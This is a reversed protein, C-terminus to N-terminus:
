PLEIARKERVSQEAALGMRVAKLGDSISVVVAGEGRVLKNFGLHQYYTSGHHDGARLIQADVELERRIPGKPHRPSIVLQSAPEGGEPWFRAPGPILSEIKAMDGTAAMEEQWLSGEAFMCLDLMARRGSAFDVIVFANDLIDPTQGNYSEDRHNVDAGGSAYVRLPEDGKHEIQMVLRMLDFYHCCKEVLTGGTRASFRNWDGVKTLFPYRHERIAFMKMSGATGLRLEDLLAAVPLMYRYEMAVWVPARYHVAAAELADADQANTCLPKEVLIPLAKPQAFIDSLIAKHTDNPSAIVLADVNAEKLLAHHDSFVAAPTAPWLQQLLQSTQTRQGADPDSFAAITAGPVLSLNRIHERGMMGAGIIGYRVPAPTSM